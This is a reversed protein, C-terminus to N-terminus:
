PSTITLRQWGADVATGDRNRVVVHYWNWGLPDFAQSPPPEAIM